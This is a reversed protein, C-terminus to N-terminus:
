MMLVLKEGEKFPERAEPNLRNVSECPVGYRKAVDYVREGSSTFCVVVGKMREAPEREALGVIFRRDFAKIDECSLSITYQLLVSEGSNSLINCACRCSVDALSICSANEILADFPIEATETHFGAGEEAFCISTILVGNVRVDSNDNVADTIVARCDSIAPTCSLPIPGGLAVEERLNLTNTRIGCRDILKANECLCDFGITPSFADEPLRYESETRGYLVFRVEAELMTVGPDDEVTRLVISRLEPKCCPESAPMSLHIRERFPVQRVLQVINNEDDAAVACVTITGSVAAASDDASVDRVTIFGESKLVRRCGDCSLEERLRLTEDGVLVRRVTRLEGNKMELDKLGSVGAVTRVPKTDTLRFDMDVDAKLVVTGLRPSVELTQIVPFM